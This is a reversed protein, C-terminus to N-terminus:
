ITNIKWGGTTARTGKILKTVLPRHLSYANTFEAATMLVIEGTNVNKFQYVTHDYSSNNKGRFTGEKIHRDAVIRISASHKKKIEENSMPNAVIMRDRQKKVFEETNVSALHKEKIVPDSMAKKTMESVKHRVEPTNMIKRTYEPDKCGGGTEPIRNAWIKNGYDDMAGVVNYITSYYRGWYVLVDRETTTLYVHTTVDNGHERLHEVWDIGSGSYSNIDQTTYGLYRFGTRNHIKEYLTYSKM